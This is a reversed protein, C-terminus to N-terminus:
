SRFMCLPSALNDKRITTLVTALYDHLRPLILLLMILYPTSGQLATWITNTNYNIDVAAFTNCLFPELFCYVRSPVLVRRTEECLFLTFGWAQFNLRRSLMTLFSFLQAHQVTSSSFYERSSGPRSCCSMTYRTSNMTTNRVVGLICAWLLFNRRAHFTNLQTCFIPTVGLAESAWVPVQFRESRSRPPIERISVVRM